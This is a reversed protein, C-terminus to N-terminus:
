STSEFKGDFKIVRSRIKEALSPSAELMVHASNDAYEIKRVDATKFLWSIFPMTENTLPITFSAQVYNSLMKLIEQKLADLNTKFLASIPVPNLTKEKLIKLKQEIETESLLDIKNLATIM